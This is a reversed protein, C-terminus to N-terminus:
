KIDAHFGNLLAMSLFFRVNATNTQMAASCIYCVHKSWQGEAVCYIIVSYRLISM